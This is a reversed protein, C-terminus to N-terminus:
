KVTKAMDFMPMAMSIVIFGIVVGLIVIMAPEFLAVMRQLAQEAEDDYYDATKDLITDLAGSEKGIEMMSDLMPPFLNSDKVVQHLESGKQIDEKFKKIANSVVRNTIIHSINELATLLPVGSSLMTALNRAFRATIIKTNLGKFLPIRLALSSFFLRGEPSIYIRRVILIIIVIAVGIYLFYSRIFASLALLIKTPMPLEVGSGEFLTIFTPLIFTVLGTVIVISLVILVIPYVMASKIRTKIKADKEFYDALRQLIVDLNGSIEGSEVMYIMLEPFVKLHEQMAQSLLKGKQVDSHMQAATERLTKNDLQKKMIDLCRIVTSGANLMANM